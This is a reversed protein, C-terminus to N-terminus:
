FFFFFRFMNEPLGIRDNYSRSCYATNNKSKKQKKKKRREGFWWLAIPGYKKKFKIKECCARYRSLIPTSFFILFNFIICLYLIISGFVVGSMINGSPECKSEYKYQPLTKQVGQFRSLSIRPRPSIWETSHPPARIKSFTHGWVYLDTYISPTNLKKGVLTPHVTNQKTLLRLPLTYVRLCFHSFPSPPLPSLREGM